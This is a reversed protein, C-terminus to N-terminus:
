ETCGMAVCMAGNIETLLAERLAAYVPESLINASKVYHQGDYSLEPRPHSLGFADIVPVGWDAMVGKAAHNYQQTKIPTQLWKYHPFNKGQKEPVPASATVWVILGGFGWEDRIQHLVEHLNTRYANLDDAIM